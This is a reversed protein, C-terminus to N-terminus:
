RGIQKRTVVGRLRRRQSEDLMLYAVVPVGVLAVFVLWGPIPLVWLVIVAAIVALAAKAGTSMAFGKGAPSPGAAEM